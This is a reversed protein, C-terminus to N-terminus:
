EVTVKWDENTLEIAEVAQSCLKQIDKASLNVEIFYKNKLERVERFKDRNQGLYRPYKQAIFEFKEPELDAITNLTREMVDRWSKVDFGQGLIELRKPITGTIDSVENYNSSENGFYAWINVAMNTLQDGRKDIEEKDWKACNQFYKNIELHSEKFTECKTSFDDNSLESNYATLTLNGVTHLYLEHVDEWKEGLHNQWWETITQPMIHEITLDKFPVAEKHAYSEELTELILKTKIARDGAGYLKADKFRIRFESDKPYGKSQLTAKFQEVFETHEKTALQSFISPFIKNLQNTPVGCVFRRILYNELIQLVSIFEQSDIKGNEFLYYCNLLFPYATTVEIRNLRLLYKRIGQNEEINPNLLKQYYKSFQNLEQLYGIANQPSVREKLSYYVDSQKVISGQRMLFHRIYETLNDKLATQMPQWYKLYVEEQNDIHIRMFFYNRILDAPTLPRGKSNLSEFVLYPNDDADLVISVISFCTTIVKKLTETEINKQKVKRKFFDYARTIQDEIEIERTQIIRKFTERDIQTPMLKFFDMGEKFKNVLYCENIEDAINRQNNERARDRLLSLIIFITTIRQQGDILLYKAVGEPVSVTPMSVISGIFHTRPNETECLEVIDEWLVEWEKKDWSYSRQFLPIVYQVTGEIVKQLKTESAQM